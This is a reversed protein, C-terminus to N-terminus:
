RPSKETPPAKLATTGPSLDGLMLALSVFRTATSIKERESSTDESAFDLKHYQAYRPDSPIQMRAQSFSPM